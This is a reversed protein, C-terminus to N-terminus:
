GALHGTRDRAVPDRVRWVAGGLRCSGLEQVKRLEAALHVLRTFALPRITTVAGPVPVTMDVEKAVQNWTLGQDRLELIQKTFAPHAPGGRRM